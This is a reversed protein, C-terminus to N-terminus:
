QGQCACKGGVVNRLLLDISAHWLPEAAADCFCCLVKILSGEQLQKHIQLIVSELVM